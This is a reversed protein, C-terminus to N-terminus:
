PACDTQCTGALSGETCCTGVACDAAAVCDDGLLGQGRCASAVCSGSLCDEPADCPAGNVQGGAPACADSVCNNSQCDNPSSCYGTSKKPWCATASGGEATPVATCEGIACADDCAPLCHPGDGVAACVFGVGCVGSNVCTQTCVGSFACGYFGECKDTVVDCLQSACQENSECSAGLPHPAEQWQCDENTFCDCFPEPGTDLDAVKCDGPCSADAYGNCRPRCYFSDQAESGLCYGGGCNTFGDCERSCYQWSGATLCIDCNDVDCPSGVPVRCVGLFTSCNDTACDSDSRCNGGVGSKEVCGSGPDCRLNSPCECQSCFDEHTPEIAECSTSVGDVCVFGRAGCPPTCVPSQDAGRGCVWFDSFDTACDADQACPYTCLGSHCSDAECDASTECSAQYQPHADASSEAGEDSSCHTSLFLCAVAWGGSWWRSSVM